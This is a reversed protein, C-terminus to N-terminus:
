LQTLLQLLHKLSAYAEYVTSYAFTYSTVHLLTIIHYSYSGKSQSRSYVNWRAPQDLVSCRCRPPVPLDVCM